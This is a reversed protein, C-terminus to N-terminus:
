PRCCARHGLLLGRGPSACRIAQHPQHAWFAAAPELSAPLTHAAELRESVGQERRTRGQQGRFAETSSDALRSGWRCGEWMGGVWGLYSLRSPYLSRCLGGSDASLLWCTGQVGCTRMELRM